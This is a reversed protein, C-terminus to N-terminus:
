AAQPLEPRKSVETPKLSIATQWGQSDRLAAILLEDTLQTMPLKRHKAEHYLVSVIFRSIVPSYHRPKAM